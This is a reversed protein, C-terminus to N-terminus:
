GLSEARKAAGIFKNFFSRFSKRYILREPHFQVGVYFPHDKKEIAQIIGNPERATVEFNKGVKDISQKHISIVWLETTKFIQHLLSGEQLNIRKRFFMYGLVNDPYDAGEYVKSIDLHLTGKSVVNMLQAGRCIAFVPIKDRNAKELLQTELQDRERDYAYDKIPEKFFLGPFVDTGGGLMLGELPEKPKKKGPALVRVRGGGLWVALWLSLYALNIRKSAPRTVGIVPRNKFNIM